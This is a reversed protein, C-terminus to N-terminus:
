ASQLPKHIAPLAYKVIYEIVQGSINELNSNSKMSWWHDCREPLLFGIRREWGLGWKTTPTPKVPFYSRKSRANEWENKNVVYINITFKLELSDSFMSKQFGILAWHSESPLYFNQGSGKLGHERLRPAIREKMLLKFKEQVTEM